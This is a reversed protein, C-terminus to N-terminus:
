FPKIQEIATEEETEEEELEEKEIKEDGTDEDKLPSKFPFASHNEQYKMKYASGVELGGGEKDGGPM